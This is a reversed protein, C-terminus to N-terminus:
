ATARRRLWLLAAGFIALLVASIAAGGVQAGTIPLGGAGERGGVAPGRDGPAVATQAATAPQVVDVSVLGAGAPVAVRATAGLNEGGVMFRPEGWAVGPVEAAAVRRLVVVSGGPIPHLVASDEKTLTFTGTRDDATGPADITYELTFSATVPVAGAAAGHVANRIVMPVSSRRPTYDNVVLLRLNAPSHATVDFTGDVLLEDGPELYYTPFHHPAAPDPTEEITCTSDEPVGAVTVDQGPRVAISKPFGARPRGDDDACDLTMEFAAPVMAGPYVGLIETGVTVTHVPKAPPTPTTTAAATADGVGVGGAGRYTVTDRTHWGGGTASNTFTDGSRARAPDKFDTEYTVVYLMTPDIDAASDFAFTFRDGPGPMATYSSADLYTGARWRHPGSWGARDVAYVRLTSLDATLREDYADTVVVPAGDAVLSSGPLHLGWALSVGAATPRLAGDKVPRTLWASPKGLSRPKPVGVEFTAGAGTTLVLQGGAVGPTSVAWFSLTGHVQTHTSLYAGFTCALTPGAATCAGITTGAPDALDFTAAAATVQPASPLNLEFGDGPEAGEPARWTAEVRMGTGAVVDDTVDTIRVATIADLETPAAHETPAAPETPAALSSGAPLATLALAAGAVVALARRSTM